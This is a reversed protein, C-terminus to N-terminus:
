LLVHVFWCLLLVLAEGKWPCRTGNGHKSGAVALPPGQARRVQLSPPLAYSTPDLEFSVGDDCGHLDGCALFPVALPHAEPPSGCSHRPDDQQLGPLGGLGQHAPAPQPASDCGTGQDSAPHQALLSRLSSPNFLPPPAFGRCLVTLALSLPQAHQLLQSVYLSTSAPHHIPKARSTQTCPWRWRSTVHFLVYLYLIVHFPACLYLIVHFPVCLNLIVHFPVCLNLVVHCAADSRSPLCVGSRFHVQLRCLERHQQEQVVQAKCLFSWPVPAQAAGLLRV